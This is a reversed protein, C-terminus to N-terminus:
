ILNVGVRETQADCQNFPDQGASPKRISSLLKEERTRTREESKSTVLSKDVSLVHDITVGVM